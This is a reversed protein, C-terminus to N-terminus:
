RGFLYLLYPHYDAKRTFQYSHLPFASLSPHPNFPPDALSPTCHGVVDSGEHNDIADGPDIGFSGLASLVDPPSVIAFSESELNRIEAPRSCKM